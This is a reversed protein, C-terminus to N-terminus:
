RTGRSSGAGSAAPPAPYVVVFGERDALADLGAYAKFGSGNGGGGHFALVVPLPGRDGVRPPLHVLYTRTVGGVALSRDHDGAGLAALILVLAIM